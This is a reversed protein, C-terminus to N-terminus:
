LRKSLADRLALPILKFYAKDKKAKAMNNNLFLGYEDFAIATDVVHANICDNYSNYARYTCCSVPRVPYIMCRGEDNLLPCTINLEYYSAKIGENSHHRSPHINSSLENADLLKCINVTKTLLEDKIDASFKSTEKQIILLEAHSVPVALKCCHNCGEKCINCMGFEEELEDIQKNIWKLEEEYWKSLKLPNPSKPIENNPNIRIERGSSKLLFEKIDNHNVSM